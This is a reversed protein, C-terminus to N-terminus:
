ASEGVAPLAPQPPPSDGGRRPAGGRLRAAGGLRGTLRRSQGRRCPLNRVFRRLVSESRTSDLRRTHCADHYHSVVHRVLSALRPPVELPDASFCSYSM